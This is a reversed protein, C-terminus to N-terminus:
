QFRDDSQGVLIFAEQEFDLAFALIELVPLDVLFVGDHDLQHKLVEPFDADVLAYEFCLPVAGTGRGVVGIHHWPRGAPPFPHVWNSSLRLRDVSLPSTSVSRGRSMPVSWSNGVSPADRARM